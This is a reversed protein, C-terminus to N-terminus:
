CAVANDYLDTLVVPIPVVDAPNVTAHKLSPFSYISSAPANTNASQPTHQISSNARILGSSLALM